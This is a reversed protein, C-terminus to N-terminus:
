ENRLADAPDMRMTRITPVATAVGAALAVFVVAAVISLRDQPPVNFLLSQIGSGAIWGAVVGVAIGVTMMVLTRRAVLVATALRGAGLAMRIALERRRQAAAYGITAYIGAAVFVVACGAVSAALTATLREQAISNEVEERMAHVERFALAPEVAALAKRVAELIADPRGATRVNLVFGDSPVGLAYFVPAIPERLSRYKADDVIGMVEYDSGAVGDHSIGFRKGLPDVDPFFKAVFARNVITHTPAHADPRLASATTLSQGATIRMGLTEFYEASVTMGSADLFHATTIRQGTPAITWSVGRGRMVAVSSVAVSVVTPITRVRETLANLVSSANAGGHAGLYGSFTAVSNVDFGTDVKRLGDLTRVFLAAMVLMFTCLAVQVLILAERGRGSSTSRGARIVADPQSGYAMVAPGVSFCVTALLAVAVIFLLVRGDANASLVLPLLAGSRDRIPPLLRLVFPLLGKALVIGATTGMATLLIGEALVHQVLAVPSAGLALRVALEQTRTVARTLLIGSINLCVLLLLLLAAILTTTLIKGFSERLVSVGRELSDLELSRAVLQKVDEASRHEIEAYYRSMTSQWITRSEAEATAKSSGPRLRGAVEFAPSGDDAPVLTRYARWPVWVDASTDTTLGHFPEPMVAVVTFYRENIAFSSGIVNHNGGFRRHWLRHSVVAPPNGSLGGDEERFVRGYMASVGLGDFFRPTVGRVAIEETPSPSTMVLHTFEGTQGFTVALTSTRNEVANLFAEPFSSISGVRPLRQVFRVLQEPRDAYLPRLLVAEFVSFVVSTAGIGLALLGAVLATFRPTRALLRAAFYLDKM